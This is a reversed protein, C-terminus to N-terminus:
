ASAEYWLDPVIHSRVIINRVFAMAMSSRTRFSGLNRTFTGAETLMFFLHSLCPLAEACAEACAYPPYTGPATGLALWCQITGEFEEFEMGLLVLDSNSSSSSSSVREVPVLLGAPLPGMRECAAFLAARFRMFFPFASAAVSTGGFGALPNETHTPLRLQFVRGSARSAKKASTPSGVLTWRGALAMCPFAADFDNIFLPHTCNSLHLHGSDIKRWAARTTECIYVKSGFCLLGCRYRLGFLM